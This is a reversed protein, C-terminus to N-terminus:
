GNPRARWVGAGPSRRHDSVRSEGGAKIEVGADGGLGRFLVGLSGKVSALAVAANPYRPEADLKQSLATGFAHRGGRGAGLIEVTTACRFFSM